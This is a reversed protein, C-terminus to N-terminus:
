REPDILVERNRLYASDFNPKYQHRYVLKTNRQQFDLCMHCLDDLMKHWTSLFDRTKWTKCNTDNRHWGQFHDTDMNKEVALADNVHRLAQYSQRQAYPYDKNLYHLASEAFDHMMSELHFKKETQALAEQEYFLRARPSVHSVANRARHWAIEWKPASDRFIDALKQCTEKTDDGLDRLGGGAVPDGSYLARLLIEVLTYYSEDGKGTVPNKLTVLTLYVEELEASDAGLVESVYHKYWANGGAVGKWHRCDKALNMYQRIHFGKERLCGVNLVMVETNGAEIFACTDRGIEEPSRHMIRMDSWRNFFNAWVYFGRKAYGGHGEWNQQGPTFLLTTSEPLDLLGKRLLPFMEDRCYFVYAHSGGPRLEHILDFQLKVARNIVKAKEEDSADPGLTPDSEWFAGDLFGRFGLTWIVKDAAQREIARRWNMLFVDEHLTLSYPLQRPWCHYTPCGLPEAHHQGVFLGMRSALEIQKEDSFINTGPIVFTGGLRLLTEFMRQWVELSFGDEIKKMQFGVLLDEDNFFFGRQRVTRPQSATLGCPIEVTPVFVPMKRTVWQMPDADLHQEAFDHIGHVLGLEDSGTITIGHESVEVEYADFGKVASSLGLRITHTAGGDPLGLRAQIDRELAQSAFAISENESTNLITTNRTLKMM